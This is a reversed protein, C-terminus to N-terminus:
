VSPTIHEPYLTHTPKRTSLYTTTGKGTLQRTSKCFTREPTVITFLLPSTTFYAILIIIKLLVFELVVATRCILALHLMTIPPALSTWKNVSGRPLGMLLCPCPFAQNSSAGHTWLKDELRPRQYTTLRQQNRM